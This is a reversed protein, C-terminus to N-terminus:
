LIILKYTKSRELSSIRVLYIGKLNAVPLLVQNVKGPLLKKSFLMKGTLDILSITKDQLDDTSEVNLTNRSLPDIYIRTTIIGTSPTSIGTSTSGITSIFINDVTCGMGGNSRFGIKGSPFSLDYVNSVLHTITDALIADVSIYGQNYKVTYNIMANPDYGTKSISLNSGIGNVVKGVSPTTTSGGAKNFYYYNKDDLYNFLLSFSRWQDGNAQFGIQYVYNPGFTQGNYIGKVDINWAGGVLEQSNDLGMNTFDWDAPLNGDFKQSYVLVAEGNVAISDGPDSVRTLGKDDYVKANIIYQGAIPKLWTFSFPAVTSEGIKVNDQTYYEVKTILGGGPTVKVQFTVSDNEKFVAEQAPATIQVLPPNHFDKITSYGKLANLALTQFSLAQDSTLTINGPYTNTQNTLGIPSEIFISSYMSVASIYSRNPGPHWHDVLDRWYTDVPNDIYGQRWAWEVPVLQAYPRQAAISEYIRQQNNMTIDDPYPDGSNSVMYMLVIANSNVKRIEDMFLTGYEQMDVASDNWGELVVYDWAQSKIKNLATQNVDTWFGYLTQGGVVYSDVTVNKGAATAIQGFMDPMGNYFTFSNGIFLVNIHGTPPTTAYVKCFSIFLLVIAFKIYRVPNSFPTIKTM